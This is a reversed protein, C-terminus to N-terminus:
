LYRIAEDMVLSTSVCCFIQFAAEPRRARRSNGAHQQLSCSQCTEEPRQNSVNGPRSTGQHHGPALSRNSAHADGFVRGRLGRLSPLFEGIDLIITSVGKLKVLSM